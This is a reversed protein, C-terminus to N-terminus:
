LFLVMQDEDVYEGNVKLAHKESGWKSFGVSEYLKVVPKNAPNVGLHILEVGPLTRAKEIVALLLKKAIGKGRYESLLYVGWMEAKHRVKQGDYRLFGTVGVLEDDDFVGLVFQDENVLLRKEIDSIPIDKSEEYSRSFAHLEEQLGRLRLDWFDSADRPGLERISINSSSM